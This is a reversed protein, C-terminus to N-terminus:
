NTLIIELANTYRGALKHGVPLTSLNDLLDCRKVERAIPNAKCRLIFEFLYPEDQRRSLADVADAVDSGYVERLYEVPVDCDEVLDHCLAVIGMEQIYNDLRLTANYVRLVHNYYPEGNWRKQQDHMLCAFAATYPIISAGPTPLPYDVLLENMTTAGPTSGPVERAEVTREAL